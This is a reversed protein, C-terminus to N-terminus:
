PVWLPGNTLTGTASNSSVDAATLGGNENFHLFLATHSSLYISEAISALGSGADQARIKFQPALQNTWASTDPGLFSGSANKVGYSALTAGPGPTMTPNASAIRITYDSSQTINGIADMTLFRIKNLNGSAADSEQFFHVQTSTLVESAWSAAGTSPNILALYPNSSAHNMWTSGGDDSYKYLAGSYELAIEQASMARKVLKMEDLTGKTHWSNDGIAVPRAGIYLPNNCASPPSQNGGSGVYVGDVYFDQNVGTYVYTYMHWESDSSIRQPASVNSSRFSSPSHPAPTLTMLFEWGCNWSSVNFRSSFFTGARILTGSQKFWTNATFSDLMDVNLAPTRPIVLYDAAGDLSLGSGHIGPARTANGAASSPHNAYGSKDLPPWEEFDLYLVTDSSISVPASSIRLAAPGQSTATVRINPTLDNVTLIGGSETATYGAGDVEEATVTLSPATYPINVTTQTQTLNGAQDRFLYVFKNNSAHANWFNLTGTSTQSATTGNSGTTSVAGTRTYTSSDYIWTSGGDMTLKRAGSFYNAAIEDASLARATVRFDDMTSNVLGWTLLGQNNAVEVGIYLYRLLSVSDDFTATAIERGNLYTTGINANDDFTVALYHWTNNNIHPGSTISVDTSYFTRLGGPIGTGGCNAMRDLEVGLGRTLYITFEFPSKPCNDTDSTKYFWTEVTLATANALQSMTSVLLGTQGNSPFSMGGNFRGTSVAHTVGTAGPFATTIVVQNYGSKDLPPWEEFDLYLITGSTVGLKQQGIVLGSASDQVDAQVTPTSINIANSCATWSTENKQRCLISSLAPAANDFQFPGLDQQSLINGAPDRFHVHMYWWSGSTAATQTSHAQNSVTADPATGDWSGATQNWDYRYNDAIVPGDFYPKFYFRNDAYWTTTSRYIVELGPKLLATIVASYASADTGVTDDAAASSFYYSSGPTLGVIRRPFNTDGTDQLYAISSGLSGNSQLYTTTVNGLVDSGSPTPYTARVVFYCADETNSGLGVTLTLTSAWIQSTTPAGPAGGGTTGCGAHIERATLFTSLIFITLFHSRKKNTQNTRNQRPIQPPPLATM